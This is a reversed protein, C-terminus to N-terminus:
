KKAPKVVLVRGQREFTLGAPSLVAKLLDNTEVNKVDLDIQTDLSLGAAKIAAEDIQVDFDLKKGLAGILQGVPMVIKLSHVKKGETVTTRKAARGSLLPEVLDQDEARGRVVLKGGNMKVDAEPLLKALKSVIEGTQLAQAKNLLYSHTIEVTEPIEVLKVSSGDAGIEFMLNFQAVLLTLRDIFSLSPLDAAAWLDHPILEAGQIEVHSEAALLALM